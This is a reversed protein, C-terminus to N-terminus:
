SCKGICNHSKKRWKAGCPDGILPMWHITNLKKPMIVNDYFRGCDYKIHCLFAASSTYEHSKFSVDMQRRWWFKPQQFNDIEPAFLQRYFYVWSCTWFFYECVICDCAILQFVFFIVILLYRCRADIWHMSIHAYCFLVFYKCLFSIPFISSQKSVRFALSFFYNHRKKTVFIPVRVM